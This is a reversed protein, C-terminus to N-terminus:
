ADYMLGYGTEVIPLDVSACFSIIMEHFIDDPSQHLSIRADCNGNQASIELLQDVMDQDVRVAAETCYYSLSRAGHDRSVGIEKALDVM